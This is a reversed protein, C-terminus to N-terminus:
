LLNWNRKIERVNAATAALASRAENRLTEAPLRAM